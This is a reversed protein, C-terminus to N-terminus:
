MGRGHRKSRKNNMLPTKDVPSGYFINQYREDFRIGSNRIASVDRLNECDCFMYAAGGREDALNNTKFNARRLSDFRWEELGHLTKLGRCGLFMDQADQVSRVDWGKIPTLDTVNMCHEFMQDMTIARSADAHSLGSIDNLALMDKFMGSSDPNLYVTKAESSLCLREQEEGWSNLPADELWAYVSAGSEQMEVVHAGEAPGDERWEIKSVTGGSAQSDSKYQRALEKIKNRFDPGKLLVAENQLSSMDNSKVESM